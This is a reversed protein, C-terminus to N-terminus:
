YKWLNKYQILTYYYQRIYNRYDAAMSEPQVYAFAQPSFDVLSEKLDKMLEVVDNFSLPDVFSNIIYEFYNKRAEERFGEAINNLVTGMGGDTGSLGTFIAQKIGGTHELYNQAKGLLIDPPLTCGHFVEKMHHDTYNIIEKEFEAHSPVITNRLPYTGRATDHQRDVKEIVVTPHLHRMLDRLRAM